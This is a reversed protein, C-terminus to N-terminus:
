PTVAEGLMVELQGRLQLLARSALVRFTGAKLHLRAAAESTDLQEVYKLILADRRRAPLEMLAAAVLELHQAADVMQDAPTADGAIRGMLDVTTHAGRYPAGIEALPRPGRRMGRLSHLVINRAIGCLWFFFARERRYEFGEIRELARVHAEQVVDEVRLRHRLGPDVQGRVFRELPARYREFLVEYAATDGQRFADLLSVTHRM